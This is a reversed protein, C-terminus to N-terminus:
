SQEFSFILNIGKDSEAFDIRLQTGQGYTHLIRGFGEPDHIDQFRKQIVQIGNGDLIIADDFPTFKTSWLIRVRNEGMTLFLRHNEDVGLHQLYVWDQIRDYLEFDIPILAATPHRVTELCIRVFQDYSFQELTGVPVRVQSAEHSIHNILFNEESNVLSSAFDGALPRTDVNQGDAFFEMPLYTRKGIQLYDGTQGTYNTISSIKDLVRTNQYVQILTDAFRRISNEDLERHALL